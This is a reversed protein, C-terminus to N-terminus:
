SKKKNAAEGASRAVQEKTKRMSSDSINVARVAHQLWLMGTALNSVAQNKAMSDPLLNVLDRLSGDIKQVDEVLTQKLQARLAEIDINSKREM